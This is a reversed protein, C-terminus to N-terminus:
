FRMLLSVWGRPSGAGPEAQSPGGRVRWALAADLEWSTQGAAPASQWRLGLGAGALGRQNGATAAHPRANSRVRGADVLAYPAWAGINHRLELQLLWGQDGTAEGSPYARVGNAGGLSIRESSDLNKDAWQGSFRGYLSTSGALSQLRLLDANLKHFGGRTGGVDQAVAAAPLLLRGPTWSLSGYSVGGEGLADRHDFDLALPLSHSTKRESAGARDDRLRKHQLTASLKLNSANTRLLPYALGASSVQARGNAGAAAFEGGLQYRTHAHSLTGRLGQAGLPSSYALSGLWLRQDSLLGRLSLQDGLRLPSRWDLGAQLRHRGSYRNGQNDLGLSGVLAPERQLAVLLDGTGVETGPQMVPTARLGPQDALLLTARELAPAAIVAGPQLPQLFSQAQAALTADDSRASVQGYRGEVVSVRLVGDRLDQAPLLARAFPYGAQQYRATVRDALARLGAMDLPRQLADALGQALQDASFVTNGSFQLSRVQVQTGGPATSDAGPAPLQLNPGPRPAAPPRQLQQLTQGADPATQALAPVAPLGFALTIATMAAHLLPRTPALSQM